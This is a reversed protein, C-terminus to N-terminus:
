KDLRKITVRRNLFTSAETQSSDAPKEAAYSVIRIRNRVGSQILMDRVAEARKQGLSLNSQKSGNLSTHGGVEIPVDPSSKLLMVVGEIIKKSEDSLRSSNSEFLIDQFSWVSEPLPKVPMIPEPAVESIIPKPPPSLSPHDKVVKKVKKKTPPFFYRVGVGLSATNAEYSDTSTIMAGAGNTTLIEADGSNLKWGIEAHISVGKAVFYDVGAAVKVALTDDLAVKCALAPNCNKLFEDSIRFDNKNHGVGILWYPSFLTNKVRPYYQVVWMTSLTRSQGFDLHSPTVNRISHTELAFDVGTVIRHGVGYLLRGNYLTGTDGKTKAGNGNGVSQTLISSGGSIGFVTKGNLPIHEALAM